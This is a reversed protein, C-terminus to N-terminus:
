SATPRADNVQDVTIVYQASCFQCDVQIQGDDAMEDVNEPSFSILTNLVRERSCSCKDQLEVVDYLWVGDEHFLRYLLESARLRTHTLEEDTVTSALAEANRWHEEATEQRVMLGSDEPLRQIMLGGARWRGDQKAVSVKLRTEIQESRAFYNEMCEALSDGELAVIGQYRNEPDKRPDITFAIYGKGLLRPVVAQALKDAAAELKEPDFAAYGRLDGPTSMDAALMSIPGDGKSQVTFIGDFKLAGGLMSALVLCEGLMRAVSEPYAHRNLIDDVVSGLRVVRGRVGAEAMQFPQILNDAIVQTKQPSSM